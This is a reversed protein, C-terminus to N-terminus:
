YRPFLEKGFIASQDWFCLEGLGERNSYLEHLEEIPGIAFSFSIEEGGGPPRYDHEYVFTNKAVQTGQGSPGFLQDDFPRGHYDRRPITEGNLSLICLVGEEILLEYVSDKKQWEQPLNLYGFGVKGGFFGSLKERLGGMYPEGQMSGKGKESMAHYIPVRKTQLETEIHLKEM